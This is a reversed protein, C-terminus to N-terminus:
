RSIYGHHGAPNRRSIHAGHIGDHHQDARRFCRDSRQSWQRAAGWSGNLEASNGRQDLKGEQVATALKITDDILENMVDICNNLDDKIENFDGHYEDTIKPPVRGQSISEVYEAVVNFPVVFADILSNIGKVLNGWCGPYAEGNGRVDLKGETVSKILARNENDIQKLVDVMNKLAPVIEDKEDKVVIEMTIDGESIRKMVSIVKTQLEDAFFDMTRAISGIEDNTNLNIRQGLHGKSMEELMDATKQIPKTISRSIIMGITISILLAIIIVAATIFKTQGTAATNAAMGACIGMAISILSVSIFGSLIKKGIKM